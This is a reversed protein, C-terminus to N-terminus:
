DTLMGIKDFKEALLYYFTVRSKNSKEPKLVTCVEEIAADLDADSATLEFKKKLWKERVRELESPDSCSVLSSDRNRLAIGLHNVIKQLAAENYKAAYKKVNDVYPAIDAM